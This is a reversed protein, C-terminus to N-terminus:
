KTPVITVLGDNLMDNLYALLDTVGTARDVDYQPLLQNCLEAVSIPDEIIEWIQTGIDDLGFYQYRELHMMVIQGDLDASIIESSQMVTTSLEIKITKSMSM